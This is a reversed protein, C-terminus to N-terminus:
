RRRRYLASLLGSGAVLMMWGSPEPVVEINDVGLIAAIPDGNPIGGAPLGPPGSSHFLRLGTVNLLTLELTADESVAILDAPDLSFEIFQWDSFSSVGVPNASAFAGGPGSLALRLSVSPSTLLIVDLVVHTFGGNLYDGTWQVFNDVALRSGAGTGGHANLELYADGVGDPGGSVVNAPPVPPTGGVGWGQTTGDQFDDIQGATISWAPAPQILAALMLVFFCVGLRFSCAGSGFSRVGLPFSRVSWRPQAMGRKRSLGTPNAHAPGKEIVTERRVGSRGNSEELVIM